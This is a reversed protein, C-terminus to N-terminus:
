LVMSIELFNKMILRRKRAFGEIYNLIVSLAARRIQSVVGFQEQKPFNQSIDYIFHVFDDMLKKLRDHFKTQNNEKLM